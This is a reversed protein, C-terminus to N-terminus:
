GGQKAADGPKRGPTDAEQQKQDLANGHGSYRVERWWKDLAILQLPKAARFEEILRARHEPDVGHDEKYCDPCFREDCIYCTISNERYHSVDCQPCRFTYDDEYDMYQTDDM